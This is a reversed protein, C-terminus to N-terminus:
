FNKWIKFATEALSKGRKEISTLDYATTKEFAWRKVEDEPLYYNDVIEKMQPFTNGQKKYTELKKELSDNNISSNAKSTILTLNGILHVKNGLEVKNIKWGDNPNQPIIHEIEILNNDWKGPPCDPHNLQMESLIYKIFSSNVNYSLKTFEDIFTDKKDKVGTRSRLGKNLDQFIENYASSDTNGEKVQDEIKKATGHMRGHYINSKERMLFYLFSLIEFEKIFKHIRGPLMERNRFICLFMVIWTQNPFSRFALLSKSLSKRRRHNPEYIKLDEIGGKLIIKITNSATVIEDFFSKWQDSTRFTKKIEKYLGKASVYGYRSWWFYRLFDKTTFNASELNQILQEWLEDNKDSDEHLERFIKNKVLDGVSLNLGKDNVSEFIEYAQLEDEIEVYIIRLDSIKTFLNMIKLRKKEIDNDEGLFEKLKNYLSSYQNKILRHEATDKEGTLEYDYLKTNIKKNQIRDSFLKRLSLGPTLKHEDVVEDQSPYWKSISISKKHILDAQVNAKDTEFTYLEDRLLCLIMTLNLSRQQGDIIEYDDKGISRVMVTGVFLDDSETLDSWFEDIQIDTWSYKRQYKPITFKKSEGFFTDQWTKAQAELHPDKLSM